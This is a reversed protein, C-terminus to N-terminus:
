EDGEFRRVLDVLEISLATAVDRLEVLDLRREGTEYKSVFSQPVGLTEAVDIQRLDAEERIERLLQALRRHERAYTSRDMPQTWPVM